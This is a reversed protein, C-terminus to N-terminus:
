APRINREQGLLLILLLKGSASRLSLGTSVRPLASCPLLCFASPLLCFAFPLLCFASPLLCFAFCFAFPLLCFASPLASPLLCFASPLFPTTIIRRVTAATPTKARESVVMLARCCGVIVTSASSIPPTTRLVFPGSAPTQTIASVFSRGVGSTLM